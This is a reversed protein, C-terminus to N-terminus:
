GFAARLHDRQEDSVLAPDEGDSVLRVFWIIGMENRTVPQMGLRDLIALLEPEYEAIARRMMVAPDVGLCRALVPVKLLPLSMSGTKLMSVVNPRPYGIERAIERQTKGSADIWLALARHFPQRAAPTTISTGPEKSETM